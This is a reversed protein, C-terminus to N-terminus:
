SAGDLRASLAAIKRESDALSNRIRDMAMRSWERDHQDFTARQMMTYAERLIDEQKKAAEIVAAIEPLALAATCCPINYRLSEAHLDRLKDASSHTSM